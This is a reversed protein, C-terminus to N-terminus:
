ETFGPDGTIRPVKPHRKIWEMKAKNWYDLGEEEKLIEFGEPANYEGDGLWILINGESKILRDPEVSIRYSKLGPNAKELLWM